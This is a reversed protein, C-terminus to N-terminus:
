MDLLNYKELTDLVLMRAAGSNIASSAFELYRTMEKRLLKSEIETILEAEPPLVLMDFIVAKEKDPSRRLIRGRRQIFQRPNTSSAMIVATRVAPIDVGEDLCRIAVLGQLSGSALQHKLSERENTSTEAVFKNVRFGLDQGLLKCVGDIQKREEQDDGIIKGAGCYFLYHSEDLRTSMLERLVPLKNAALGIIRARRFLLLSLSSDAGDDDLSAGSAILRSINKTLKLYESMEDVTLELFIPYYEYQVLAGKRIADVLTFPPELPNGFYNYLVSTGVTDFWREPTASLGLRWPIEEPLLTQIQKAGLNHVEDAILLTKRPFYELKSQFETNTYTANTTIVCLFPADGKGARFLRGTLEPVWKSSSKYALVPHLGFTQCNEEWQTVLHQFPVIIIMADLGATSESLHAAVGLATYTKGSGTAMEFIGRGNHKFWNRIAENQYDRLNINVPIRPSDQRGPTFPDLQDSEMPDQTPKRIQKYKKLIDASVETFDLIQLQDTDNSWLRRFNDQKIECREQDKWSCFVDITEFNSVLGGVTENSSGSFTVYNDEDDYFIGIKEHYIGRVPMGMNDVRIALKIQLFGESIMWALASLRDKTVHDEIERFQREVIERFVVEKDKLGQQIAALDDEQLMPSCVLQVQGSNSLLRAIGKAAQNLGSSTFYGVARQYFSSHKMCPIYFDSILNHQDSRYSYQLTVEKLNGM